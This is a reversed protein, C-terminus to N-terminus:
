TEVKIGQFNAFVFYVFCGVLMRISCITRNRIAQLTTRFIELKNLSSSSGAFTLKSKQSEVQNVWFNAFISNSFPHKRISWIM